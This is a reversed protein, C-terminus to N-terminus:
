GFLYVLTLALVTGVTSVILVTLVRGTVVGRGFRLGETKASAKEAAARSTSGQIDSM